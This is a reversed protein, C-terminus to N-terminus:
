AFHFLDYCQIKMMPEAITWFTLLQTFYCQVLPVVFGVSSIFIRCAIAISQFLPLHGVTIRTLVSPSALILDPKNVPAPPVV